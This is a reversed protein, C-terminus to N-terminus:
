GNIFAKGKKTLRFARPSNHSAETAIYGHDFAYEMHFQVSSPSKLGIGGGIERVTPAYGHEEFYSKIFDLIAKHKEIFQKSKSRM